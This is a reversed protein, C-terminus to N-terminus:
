REASGSTLKRQEVTRQQTNRSENNSQLSQVFFPQHHNPVTFRENQLVLLTENYQMLFLKVCIGPPFVMADTVLIVYYYLVPSYLARSVPVCSRASRAARPCVPVYSCVVFVVVFTGVCAVATIFLFSMASVPRHLKQICRCFSSQARDFPTPSAGVKSPTLREAPLPPLFLYVYWETACAFVVFFGIDVPLCSSVQFIATYSYFFFISAFFNLFYGSAKGIVFNTLCGYHHRAGISELISFIFMPWATLQLVLSVVRIGLNLVKM